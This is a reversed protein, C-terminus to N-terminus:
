KGLKAFFGEKELADLASTDTIDAPKVNGAAPLKEKM